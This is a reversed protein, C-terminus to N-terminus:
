NQHAKAAPGQRSVLPYSVNEQITLSDFLGGEQFLVVVKSRLGYLQHEPMKTIDQGLLFVRGSDQKLLGIAVKLMVSKGSGAAGFVMLTQGAKVDFSIDDLARVDGFSVSVNEFRLISEDAREPM